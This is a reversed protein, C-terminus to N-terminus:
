QGEKIDLYKALMQKLGRRSIMGVPQGGEDTVAMRARHQGIATAAVTLLDDDNEIASFDTSMFDGVKKEKAASVAAAFKEDTAFNDVVEDGNMSEPIIADLLDAVSVEGVLRGDESTVLVTNTEGNVM